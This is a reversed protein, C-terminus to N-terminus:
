SQAIANKVLYGAKVNSLFMDYSDMVIIGTSEPPNNVAFKYVKRPGENEYTLYYGLSTQYPAAKEPRVYFILDRGWVSALTEAQGKAATNMAADSIYLYKVDMARAIDERSLLGARNAAYGLATLISPHYKLVNYVGWSMVAANPAMGCGNKVASFATRFVTLPTSATYDNFQATGSLTQNQTMISTSGLVDALAKEKGLWLATTLGVVEDEEARFPLEVNRYDDPTVISELGHAEITYSQTTRTIVEVRRAEGRGGMVTNQIRLHESGYKGLLGTTQKVSIGPLVEESVYGSPIYASSVQTLLKDVIAKTQAM